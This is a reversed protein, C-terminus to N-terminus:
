EISGPAAEHSAGFGGMKQDALHGPVRNLKNVGTHDCIMHAGSRIRKKHADLELADGRPGTVFVAGIPQDVRVRQGCVLEIQATEHDVPNTSHVVNGLSTRGASGFHRRTPSSIIAEEIVRAEVTKKGGVM